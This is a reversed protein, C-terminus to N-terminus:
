ASCNCNDNLKPRVTMVGLLLPSSSSLSRSLLWATAKSPNLTLRPNPTWRNPISRFRAHVWVRSPPLIIKRFVHDYMAVVGRARITLTASNAEEEPRQNAESELACAKSDILEFFPEDCHLVKDQSGYPNNDICDDTYYICNPHCGPYDSASVSLSHNDGLFLTDDGLSHIEVREVIQGDRAAGSSGTGSSGGGLGLVKFIKFCSTVWRRPKGRRELFRQVLLLDEGRSQVIYAKNAKTPTRPAVVEVRTESFSSIDVSFIGSYVDVVYFKGLHYIADTLSSMVIRRIYTWKNDGPKIYALSRPMGFIEAVVFDNNPMLSPDHSLVVKLIHNEYCFKHRMTPKIDPELSVKPFRFSKGSFPNLLKVGADAENETALWGHCSGCGRRPYPVRLELNLVKRRTVSYLRRCHYDAEEATEAPPPILLMPLEPKHVLERRRHDKQHDAAAHWPKCVAGFRIYDSLQILRRLVLVLLEEPLSAWDPSSCWALKKSCRRVMM